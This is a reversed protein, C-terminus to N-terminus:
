GGCARERVALISCPAHHAVRSTISGILFRKIEKRGKYVLVILDSGADAATQLIEEAVDSSERLEASVHPTSWHLTSVMDQLAAELAHKKQQWISNLQQSIDQRYMHVMPMISIALVETQEDLPLSACLAAAKRAPESDDYSLLIRWPLSARAAGARLPLNPSPKVVLVSCCAHELVRDSVSGILFHRIGGTGYTGMAILDPGLDEAAQIIEEAPDGDRIETTGSWGAERLRAAEDAVLREADSRITQETERLQRRQDEDLGHLREDNFLGTDIVTLVTVSSDAPLPFSILFDVVQRASDSGDTALLIKM